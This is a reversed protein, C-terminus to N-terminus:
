KLLYSMSPGPRGVYCTKSFGYYKVIDLAKHAEDQADAFDFMWHNGDVIKWGENIKKVQVTANNFALCDEDNSPGTPASNGSLFYEFSPNPRGVFCQKNMNHARLVNLAEQAQTQSSGFDLLLLAGVKIKWRSGLKVVVASDPDFSICDQNAPAAALPLGVGPSLPRFMPLKKFSATSTYAARGSGDTFKTYLTATLIGEAYTLVLTKEAFDQVYKAVLAATDSLADASVNGAYATAPVVGWDCDNPSCSGYAQVTVAPGLRKIKIRTIGRTADETNAWTGTYDNITADAASSTGLALLLLAVGIARIKFLRTM